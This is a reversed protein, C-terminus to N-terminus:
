RPIDLTMPLEDKDYNGTPVSNFLKVRMLPRGAELDAYSMMLVLRVCMKHLSRQSEVNTPASSICSELVRRLSAMALEEHVQVPQQVPQIRADSKIGQQQFSVKVLATKVSAAPLSLLDSCLNVENNSITTSTSSAAVRLHRRESEAAEVAARASATLEESVMEDDELLHDHTGHVSDVSLSRKKLLTGDKSSEDVLAAFSEVASQMKPVLESLSSTAQIIPLIREFARLTNEKMESDMLQFVSEKDRLFLLLAKAANTLRSPRQSGISVVSSVLQAQLSPSFGYGLPGGKSLWILMKNFLVEADQELQKPSAFAHHLPIDSATSRRTTRTLRPDMSVSPPPLAFLVIEEALRLYLSRNSDSHNSAILELIRQCIVQFNEYLDRPDSSIKSQRTIWIMITGYSKMIINTMQRILGEQTLDDHIFFYCMSILHEFLSSDKSCADSTFKLLFRRIPIPKEVMFTLLEPLLSSMLNTDRHFLIEKVQELKYVKEKADTAVKAENLIEVALESLSM